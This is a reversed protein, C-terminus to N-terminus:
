LAANAKSLKVMRKKYGIEKAMLMSLLVVIMNKDM